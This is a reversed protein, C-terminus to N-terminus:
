VIPFCPYPLIADEITHQQQEENAHHKEKDQEENLNENKGRRNRLLCSQLL